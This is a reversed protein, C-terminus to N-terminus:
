KRYFRTRAFKERHDYPRPENNGNAKLFDENAQAIGAIVNEDERDGEKYRRFTNKDMVNKAFDDYSWGKKEQRLRRKEIKKFREIDGIDELHNLCDRHFDLKSRFRLKKIRPLPKMIRIYGGFRFLRDLYNEGVEFIHMIEDLRSEIQKPKLNDKYTRIDM